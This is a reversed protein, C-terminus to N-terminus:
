ENNRRRFQFAEALHAAEINDKQEMDAITRAVRLIKDAGRRSIKLRECGEEYLRVAEGKLGCYRNLMKGKLQSNYMINESGYREKQIRRATEINKRMEYSSRERKSYGPLRKSDPSYVSAFDVFLDFRDAIPGSLKERYRKIQLPSCTCRHEPDNLYGCPCPNRAGVLIFRCPYTIKGAARSISIQGDELPQRLAELVDRRFEPIEDLFLVGAHALTVEGPKPMGSGGGLMASSSVNAAPSRFPRKYMLKGQRSEDGYIGYLRTVELMEEYDLDPMVTYIRRAIMSKGCGPPGTFLVHHFGSISIEVARKAELSGKVESFDEDWEWAPEEDPRPKEGTLPKIEKEGRIFDFAGSLTEVPYFEVGEVIKVEDMNGVPIVVSKVNKDRLGITIPLAKKIPNIRGDLSLEGLVAFDNKDSVKIEFACTLLSLAMALDMYSGEKKTDAPSLNITIRRSLPFSLGSNVIAARLREKAEKVSTDPLGVINLVPLGRAIDCEAYIIETEMGKLNCSKICSVM